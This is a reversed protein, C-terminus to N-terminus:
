SFRRSRIWIPLLLAMLFLIILGAGVQMVRYAYLAYASKSPDYKFCYWVISDIINGIRGESAEGLALRIDQGKFIIGHLYRSIKGEPTLFVAASAHAWENAKENWKYEFGVASTIAKVTSEDATLFRFGSASEPNGYVKLYSEKKKAAVDATEKSDFSLALVDFENGVKWKMEKMGDVLGNLHFNCLGPCSYYVLSLIVPKKSHFFSKLPVVEGAENRVPLNLDLSNGLNEKIGMGSFDEPKAEAPLAAPDFERSKGHGSSQSFGLSPFLFTLSLLLLRSPTKLM